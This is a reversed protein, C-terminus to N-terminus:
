SSASSKSSLDIRELSFSQHSDRICMEGNAASGNWADGFMQSINVSTSGGDGFLLAVAVYTTDSTGKVLNFDYNIYHDTTLNEVLPTDSVIKAYPYFPGKYSDKMNFSISGDSVKYEM